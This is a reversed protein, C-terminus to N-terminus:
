EAGAGLMWFIKTILQNEITLNLVAMEDYITAYGSMYPPTMHLFRAEDDNYYAFAIEAKTNQNDLQVPDGYLVSYGQYKSTKDDSFFLQFAEQATDGIRLGRALVYDKGTVEVYKLHFSPDTKGNNMFILKLGDYVYTLVDFDTLMDKGTKSEKPLGLAKEAEQPTAGVRVDNVTLDDHSFPTKNVTQNSTTAQLETAPISTPNSVTTQVISTPGSTTQGSPSSEPQNCGALGIVLVFIALIILITPHVIRNVLRSFKNTWQVNSM